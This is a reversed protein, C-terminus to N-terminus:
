AIRPHDLQELCDLEQALLEVYVEMERIKANGIVKVACRIKSANNTARFVAGFAGEGILKELRYQSGFDDWDLYKIAKYHKFNVKVNESIKVVGQSVIQSMKVLCM